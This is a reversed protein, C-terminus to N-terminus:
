LGRKKQIEKFEIFNKLDDVSIRKGIIEKNKDLVFLKPTSNINYFDRFRTHPYPGDWVNLWGDEILEKDEIFDKWEDKDYQTYFAVIQVNFNSLSDRYHQVLKPIEKKCHGCHPEFFVLLTYDAKIDHLTYYKDDISQMRELNHATDGIITGSKEKVIKTLKNMFVSDAWTARGSLYWDEAIAVFVADYGMIKSAQFYQLLHSTTFQFVLSDGATYSKQIIKYSEPILSDPLPVVMKDFYYTLKNEFIPTRLLGRESFDINDFYHEKYYKYQFTSDTINGNEDLPPEPIEIDQMAILIKSFFTDPNDEIITEMFDIRTKSLAKQKERIINQKEIDDKEKKYEKSLDSMNKQIDSMERQYENFIINEKCGKIKLNEVFNATDTKITFKKQDAILFEFYTMNRSPMAIFYIGKELKKSGFFIAKGKSNIPTTDVVFKSEGMYHGMYIVTDSIGNIEVKIEYSQAFLITTLFSIILTFIVKKM